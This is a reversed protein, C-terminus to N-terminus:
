QVNKKDQVKKIPNMMSPKALIQLASDIKFNGKTVVREGEKLGSLVIYYDDARDGLIVDRRIYRYTTTDMNEVYVLARKGTILPATVPILLVKVNGKMNDDTYGFENTTILDMDCIDCQTFSEEIVNPHMPCIWKGYLEKSYMEGREGISARISAHVFMGPKLKNTKNNINVRLKITRTKDNVFPDIFAIKGYFIEGPYSEAEVSVKQGYYIWKIDSEYAYLYLWIRSLDAITYIKEGQTVYMGEFGNKHIITGEVTSTITIREQPKGLKVLEDIQKKDIGYLRLKNAVSQLMVNSPHEVDVKRSRISEFNKIAQLYEEQSAILEPSYIQILHDGKRVKTGTFDVFLREIRGSVWASIYSLSTEDYDVKGVLRISKWAKQYLVPSTELEALRRGVTNLSLSVDDQVDKGLKESKEEYIPILDMSCLPCKGAKQLSIRPHMSCIWNTILSKDSEESKEEYIPILDMSCLPCKGAKQLSIRPHMSCTWNTILGQDSFKSPSNKMTYFEGIFIKFVLLALVIVALVYLFKKM